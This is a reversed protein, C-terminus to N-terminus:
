LKGGSFLKFFTQYSEVYNEDKTIASGVVALDAYKMVKIYTEKNIGGDVNILYHLNNKEKYEKLFKLKDTASDLYTQGGKGPEVSMILIQDIMSLYPILLHVDTNPKISLGAKIGLSHIKDIREKVKGVELHFTIYDAHAKKYKEFLSDPDEVMLHVDIVSRPSAKFCREVVSEDFSTNNVFKGDMIDMHLLPAYFIPKLFKEINNLDANLISLDLIM